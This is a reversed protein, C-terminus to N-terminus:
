TKNRSAQFKEKDKQFFRKAQKKITELEKILRDVEYQFEDFTVCESSIVIFGDEDNKLEPKSWTKLAVYASPGHPLKGEKYSGPIDFLQLSNTSM